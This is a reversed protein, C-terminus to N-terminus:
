MPYYPVQADQLLRITLTISDDTHSHYAPIAGPPIMPTIVREIQGAFMTLNDLLLWDDDAEYALGRLEPAVTHIYEFLKDLSTHEDSRIREVAATLFHASTMDPVYNTAQITEQVSAELGLFAITLYGFM